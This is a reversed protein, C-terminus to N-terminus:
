KYKAAIRDIRKSVTDFAVAAPRVQKKANVIPNKSVVHTRAVARPAFQKMFSTQVTTREYPKEAFTQQRRKSGYFTHMPHQMVPGYPMGPQPAFTPPGYGQPKGTTIVTVGPKTITPVAQKQKRHERVAMPTPRVLTEGRHERVVPAQKRTPMPTPRVLMEVRHDRRIPAAPTAPTARHDRVITRSPARGPARHDRIIVRQPGVTVAVSKGRALDQAARVIAGILGPAPAQNPSVRVADDGIRLVADKGREFSEAVKIAAQAVAEPAPTPAVAQGSGRVSAIFPDITHRAVDVPSVVRTWFPEIIGTKIVVDPRMHWGHTWNKTWPYHAM